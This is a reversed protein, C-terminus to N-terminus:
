FGLNTLTKKFTRWKLLNSIQGYLEDVTIKPEYDYNNRNVRLEKARRKRREDPSLSFVIGIRDDFRNLGVQISYLDYGLPKNYVEVTEDPVKTVGLDKLLNISTKMLNEWKGLDGFAAKIASTDEETLDRNMVILVANFSVTCGIESFNEFRYDGDEIEPM